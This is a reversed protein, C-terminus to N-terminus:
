QDPNRNIDNKLLQISGALSALPNKIEHALGAGM